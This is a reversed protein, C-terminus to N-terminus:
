PQSQHAVVFLVVLDLFVRLKFLDDLLQYVIQPYPLSGRGDEVSIDISTVQWFCDLYPELEDIENEGKRLMNGYHSLIPGVMSSYASTLPNLKFTPFITSYDM